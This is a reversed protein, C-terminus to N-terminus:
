SVRDLTPRNQSRSYCHAASVTRVHGLVARLNVCDFPLEENGDTHQSYTKWTRLSMALISRNEDKSARLADEM